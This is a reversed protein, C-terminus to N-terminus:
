DDETVLPGFPHGIMASFTAPTQWTLSELELPCLTIWQGSRPSKIMLRSGNRTEVRTVHIESFENAIVIPTGTVHAELRLREETAQIAALRDEEEGEWELKM